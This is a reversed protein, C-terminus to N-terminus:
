EVAEGSRMKTMVAILGQGNLRDLAYLILCPLLMIPWFATTRFLINSAAKSGVKVSKRRYPYRSVYVCHFNRLFFRKKFRLFHHPPVDTGIERSGRFWREYNPVTVVCVGGEKLLDFANKLFAHPSMQHELVESIVVIDFKEPFFRGAQDDFMAQFVNVLGKRHCVDVSKADQEVGFYDEPKISFAEMLRDYNVGDGIGIEVIKRGRLDFNLKRLVEVLEASWETFPRGAHLQAYVEMIENEYVQEFNRPSFFVLFCQSCSYERYINGNISSTLERILIADNACWPCCSDKKIKETKMM